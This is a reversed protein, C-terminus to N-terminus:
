WKKSKQYTGIVTTTGRKLIEIVKGEARHGEGASNVIKVNVTDGTMSGNTMNPPIFIDNEDNDLEVFGFGRENAIFKGTEFKEKM